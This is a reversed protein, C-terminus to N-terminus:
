DNAKSGRRSTVIFPRMQIRNLVNSEIDIASQDDAWKVHWYMKVAFWLHIIIDYIVCYYYNWETRGSPSFEFEMWKSNLANRQRARGRTNRKKERERWVWNCLFVFHSLPFHFGSHVRFHISNSKRSITVFHKNILRKLRKILKRIWHLAATAISTIQKQFEIILLNSFSVFLEIAENWESSNCVAFNNENWEDCVKSNPQQSM